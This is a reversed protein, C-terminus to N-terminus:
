HRYLGEFRAHLARSCTPGILIESRQLLLVTLISRSMGSSLVVDSNSSDKSAFTSQLRVDKLLLYSDGYFHCCDVGNPDNFINLVGYKVRDFALTNSYISNFM